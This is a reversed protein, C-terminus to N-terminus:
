NDVLTMQHYYRLLYDNLNEPPSPLVSITQGDKSKIESHFVEDLAREIGPNTGKMGEIVKYSWVFYGQIRELDGSPRV